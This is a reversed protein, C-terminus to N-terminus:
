PRDPSPEAAGIEEILAAVDPLPAGHGWFGRQPLAGGWWGGPWRAALRAVAGGGGSFNVEAPSLVLVDPPADPPSTLAARDTVAATRAHPLRVVLLRGGLAREAGALAQAGAAEEAPTVGQAARDETRLAAIEAASAGMARLEPIWGRDNAAVLALRRTWAAAPLGLLAFVQELATPRDAGAQAGHHDLWRCRAALDPPLDDRLEVLVPVRGAALAAEIEARYASARAAHWPLARDVATSDGLTQRVLRGIEVMELDRGGLFFRYPATM